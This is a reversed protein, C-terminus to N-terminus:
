VCHLQPYLTFTCLDTSYVGSNCIFTSLDFVVFTFFFVSEINLLFLGDVLAM